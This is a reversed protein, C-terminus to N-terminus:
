PLQRNEPPADTLRPGVLPLLRSKLDVAPKGGM